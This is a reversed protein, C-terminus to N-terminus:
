NRTAINLDVWYIDPSYISHIFLRMEPTISLGALPAALESYLVIEVESNSCGGNALCAEPDVRGVVGRTGLAYSFYLLGDAGMVISTVNQLGSVLSHHVKDDTADIAGTSTDVEKLDFWEIARRASGTNAVYLYDGDVAIGTPSRLNKILEVPDDDGIVVINNSHLNSVVFQGNEIVAIGWPGNLNTAVNKTVGQSIQTLTNSQFDPLWLSFSTGDETALLTHANKVGYIYQATSGTIADVEYLTWDGSCSVYLKDNHWVLGNPRQINGTLTSLDAQTFPKQDHVSESSEKPAVTVTIQPQPTLTKTPAVTPTAITEQQLPEAVVTPHWFLSLALTVFLIGCGYILSRM